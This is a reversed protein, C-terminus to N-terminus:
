QKVFFVGDKPYKDLRLFYNGEVLKSIEIKTLLESVNGSLCIVGKNDVITYTSLEVVEKFEINIFDSSVQPYVVYDIQGETNFIEKTYREQQQSKIVFKYQTRPELTCEFDISEWEKDTNTKFHHVLAKEGLDNERILEYTVGKEPNVISEFNLFLTNNNKQLSINKVIFDKQDLYQVKGNGKSSGKFSKSSNLVFSPAHEADFTLAISGKENVKIRKLLTGGQPESYFYVMSNPNAGDVELICKDEIQFSSTKFNITQPIYAKHTAFDLNNQSYLCGGLFLSFIFLTTRIM